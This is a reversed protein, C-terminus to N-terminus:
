PTESPRTEAPPVSSTIDLETDIWQRVSNILYVSELSTLDQLEVTEEEIRGQALLEARFTGALLGCDVPPTVWRQQRLVVVNALTSETIEGQENWLLVDDHGPFRKRHDRYVQRCTTKHFLFPNASDVPEAAVALRWPKKHPELPASEVRVTGQNSVLLRIRHPQRPLNRSAQDLERTVEPPDCPFGFYAASEELRRLHRELLVFGQEPDWLITELLQFEPPPPRLVLAKTFCERWEERAVSDWVVGSGTGYTAKGAVTDIDVTRIGVNFRARRGPGILGIAGTYAGRPGQELERIIEMSRVKPAGTVSACPFLAAFIDELSAQTRSKVTSTLQFLSPYKELHWLDSVEVTDPMAIRGLDNRVMDVIMINEAQNKNSTQLWRAQREDEELTRGRPATGKM